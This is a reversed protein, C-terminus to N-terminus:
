YQLGRAGGATPQTAAADEADARGVDCTGHVDTWAKRVAPLSGLHGLTDVSVPSTRTPSPPSIGYRTCLWTTLNPCDPMPGIAEALCQLYADRELSHNYLEIACIIFNYGFERMADDSLPYEAEAGLSHSYIIDHFVTVVTPISDTKGERHSVHLIYLVSLLMTAYDHYRALAVDEILDDDRGARAPDWASDTQKTVPVHVDKDGEGTKVAYDFDIIAVKLEDETIMMNKLHLDFHFVGKAHMDSIATVANKIAQMCLDTNGANKALFSYLTIGPIKPEALFKMCSGDCNPVTVPYSEGVGNVKSNIASVESLEREGPIHFTAKVLCGDGVTELVSRLYQKSKTPKSGTPKFVVTSPDIVVARGGFFMKSLLVIPLLPYLLAAPSHFNERSNDSSASSKFKKYNAAAGVLRGIDETKCKLWADLQEYDRLSFGTSDCWSSESRIIAGLGCALTYLRQFLINDDGENDSLEKIFLGMAYKCNYTIAGAVAYKDKDNLSKLLALTLLMHAGASKTEERLFDRFEKPHMAEADECPTLFSLLDAYLQTAPLLMVLERLILYLYKQAAPTRQVAEIISPFMLVFLDDFYYEGQCDWDSLYGTLEKRMSVLAIFVDEFDDVTPLDVFKDEPAVDQISRM